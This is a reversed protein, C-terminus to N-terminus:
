RRLCRCKHFYTGFESTRLVFTSGDSFLGVFVSGFKELVRQRRLERPVLLLVLAEVVLSLQTCLMNDVAVFYRFGVMRPPM